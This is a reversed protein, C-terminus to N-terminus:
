MGLFCLFFDSEFGCKWNLSRSRHTGPCVYFTYSRLATRRNEESCGPSDLAGNFTNPAQLQPWLISSTGWDPSAGLALKCLDVELPDWSPSDGLNTKASVVDGVQNSITWTYNWIQYTSGARPGLRQGGITIPCTLIAVLLLIM